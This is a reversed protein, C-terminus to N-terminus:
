AVRRVSISRSGVIFVHTPLFSVVVVIAALHVVTRRLSAGTAATAHCVSRWLSPLVSSRSVDTSPLTSLLRARASSADVTSSRSKEAVTANVLTWTITAREGDHVTSSASLRKASTSTQTAFSQRDGAAPLSLRSHVVADLASSTPVELHSYLMDTPSRERSIPRRHERSPKDSRAYEVRLRSGGVTKNNTHKLARDADTSSVFEVFAFHKHEDVYITSIEGYKSFLRSLDAKRNEGIDGVFLKSPGNSSRM